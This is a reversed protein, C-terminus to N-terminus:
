QWFYTKGELESVVGMRNESKYEIANTCHLRAAPRADDRCEDGHTVDFILNVPFERALLSSLALGIVEPLTVNTLMKPSQVRREDM